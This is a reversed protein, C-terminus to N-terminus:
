HLLYSRDVEGQCVFAPGLIFVQAGVHHHVEAEPLADLDPHRRFVFLDRQGEAVRRSQAVTVMLRHAEVNSADVVVQHDGPLQPIGFLPEVLGRFRALFEDSQQVAVFDLDAGGHDPEVAMEDAGDVQGTDDAVIEADVDDPTGVLELAPHEFEHFMGDVEPQAEHRLDAGQQGHAPADAHLGDRVRIGELRFIHQMQARIHQLCNHARRNARVRIYRFAEFGTPAFHELGNFSDQYIHSKTQHLETRLIPIHAISAQLPNAFPLFDSSSKIERQQARRIYMDFSGIVM